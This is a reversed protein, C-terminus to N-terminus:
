KDKFQRRSVFFVRLNLGRKQNSHLVVDDMVGVCFNVRGITERDVSKSIMMNKKFVSINLITCLKNIVVEKLSSQRRKKAATKVLFALFDCICASSFNSAVSPNMILTRVM